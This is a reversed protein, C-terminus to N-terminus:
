NSETATTDDTETPEVTTDTADPPVTEDVASQMSDRLAEVQGDLWLRGEDVIDTYSNLPGEAAPLASIIWDALMYVILLILLILIVTMFGAKFGRKKAEEIVEPEPDVTEGREESSRLTSNIEEIDPLMEKRSAAAAAAVAAINAEAEEGKIKAIREKSEQERQAEAAEDLGMETQSEIAAGREAARAAEERDAEQQLIEAVTPDLDSPAPEAAPAPEEVEEMEPEPAPEPEPQPEPELEQHAPVPMEVEDQVPAGEKQEFWTHGCNSCQVDRGSEPIVDDAVEYQAGCNPCVLRM